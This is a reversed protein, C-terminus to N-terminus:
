ATAEDDSSIPEVPLLVGVTLLHVRKVMGLPIALVSDVMDDSTVSQALM